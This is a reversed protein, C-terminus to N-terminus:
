YPPEIEREMAGIWTLIEGLGKYKRGYDIHYDIVAVRYGHSTGAVFYHVNKMFNERQSHRRRVIFRM